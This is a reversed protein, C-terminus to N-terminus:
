QHHPLGRADPKDPPVRRSGRRQRVRARGRRGPALHHRRLTAPSTRPVGRHPALLGGISPVAYTRFLAFSLAENMDWPFEHTGGHDPLDRPLGHRSGAGRDPAALRVQADVWRVGASVLWIAHCGGTKLTRRSSTSTSRLGCFSMVVARGSCGDGHAPSGPGWRHTRRSPRRAGPGPATCKWATSRRSRTSGVLGSSTRRASVAHRPSRPGRRARRDVLLEKAAPRGAIRARVQSGPPSNSGRFGHPCGPLQSAATARTFSTTVRAAPPRRM